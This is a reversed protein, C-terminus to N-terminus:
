FTPAYKEKTSFIPTKSKKGSEERVFSPVAYGPIRDRLSKILFTGKEDPVHFHEAGQVKDLSHIYYPLIGWDSLQTCLKELVDIDDNINKLLVSQCLVPTGTFQIKKLSELVDTDLENPHNIHVVFVFQKNISKFANLLESTIREPIGIPFRSHFRIKKIHYIKALDSVISILENDNLSLPDGGSLIVEQLQDNKRIWEIENKFTTQKSAYPFHRRFCYRCHMACASSPIMLVRSTYKSILTTSKKFSVEELPDKKYDATEKTEELIPLFQMLIPDELNGKEIKKALRLPLNLPFKSKKLLLEKQALSLNLFKALKDIHVFNKKLISRWLPLTM